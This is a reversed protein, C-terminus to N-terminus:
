LVSATYTVRSNNSGVGGYSGPPVVAANLYAYTWRADINTIIGTLPVPVGVGPGDVLAPAALVAGTTLSTATTSFQSFSLTNGSGLSDTLAGATSATLTVQGANARVRATVAGNGLDGSGATAAIPTGDGVNALPVNFDILNITANNAAATGTGVQLFLVRQIVVRFDVRASASQPGAGIVNSSEAIASMPLSLAALGAAISVARLVFKNM